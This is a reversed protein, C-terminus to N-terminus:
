SIEPLSLSLPLCLSPPPPPPPLSLSLSLSAPLPPSLSAPLPSLSLCASPSLSLSVRHTLSLIPLACMYMMLTREPAESFVAILKGGLFIERCYLTSCLEHFQWAGEVGVLIEPYFM